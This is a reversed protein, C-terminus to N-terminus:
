EGQKKQKNLKKFQIYDLVDQKQAPTLDKVEGWLAFEIEKLQKDLEDEPLTNTRGFLYDLSVGFINALKLQNEADPMTKGQEWYSIATQDVFLLKALQSQTLRRLKRLEKIKKSLM